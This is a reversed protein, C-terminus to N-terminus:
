GHVEYYARRALPDCVDYLEEFVVSPIEIHNGTPAHILSM